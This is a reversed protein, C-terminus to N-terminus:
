WHRFNRPRFDDRQPDVGREFSVLRDGFRERLATLARGEFPADLTPTPDAFERWEEYDNIELMKIDIDSEDRSPDM